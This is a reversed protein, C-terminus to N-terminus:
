DKWKQMWDQDVVTEISIDRLEGRLGARTLSAEIARSNVEHDFYAGLKVHDSTEELTVIGASGLEFLIVSADEDAGPAVTLTVLRWQSNRIASQPNRIESTM